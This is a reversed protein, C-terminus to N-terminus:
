ETRGGVGVASVFSFGLDAQPSSTNMGWAYM